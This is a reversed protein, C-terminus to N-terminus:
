LTERKGCKDRGLTSRGLAGAAYFPNGHVLPAFRLRRMLGLGLCSRLDYKL